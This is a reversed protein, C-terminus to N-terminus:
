GGTDMLSQGRATISRLSEVHQAEGASLDLRGPLLHLDVAYM